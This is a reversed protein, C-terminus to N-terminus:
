RADSRTGALGECVLAAGEALRLTPRQILDPPVPVVPLAKLPAPMSRWRQRLGDATESSGGGVVVEPRAALVAELSVEPTLSIADGFLNEGGCLRIVDGAFHRDSVTMLPRHWIEYFVRIRNQASVDRRLSALASDFRRLAAEARTQTGTLHAIQRVASAVETVRGAYSAFVTLELRELRAIVAPPTGSHWALVLDPKLALIAEINFTLADSVVPLRTVAQPFDSFRAVGVLREGAGASYVLEALNPALTVIRKAPGALRVVKGRADDLVIDAYVPLSLWGVFGAILACGTRIM